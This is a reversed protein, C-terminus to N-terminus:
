AKRYRQNPHSPADPITMEVAGSEIAPGLYNSRFTSRSKIELAAMIEGASMENEGMVDLLRQIRIEAQSTSPRHKVSAQGIESDDLGSGGRNQAKDDSLFADNRHFILKTGNPVEVYEVRVGVEGCLKKIRPIGTGYSEIDKSRYLTQVILPNRSKSSHNEGSLHESPIQGEIFWGPSTVEVSDYFIDVTVAELRQWDRHAYANM